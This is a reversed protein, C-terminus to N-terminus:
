AEKKIIVTLPGGGDGVQEQRSLRPAAFDALYGLKALAGAPDASRGAQIVRGKADLKDPIGKAVQEVWKAINERNDELLKRVTDRFEVTVKNPTGKARGGVRKGPTSQPRPKSGTAQKAPTTM